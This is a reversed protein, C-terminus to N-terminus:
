GSKAVNRASTPSSLMETVASANGPTMRCSAAWPSFAFQHARQDDGAHALSAGREGSTPYELRALHQLPHVKVEGAPRKRFTRSEPAYGGRRTGRRSNRLLRILGEGRESAHASSVQDLQARAAVIRALRAKASADAVTNEPPLDVVKKTAEGEKALRWVRPSLLRAVVALLAAWLRHRSPIARITTGEGARTCSRSSARFFESPALDFRFRPANGNM